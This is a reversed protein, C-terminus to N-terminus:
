RGRVYYSPRSPVTKMPTQRDVGPPSPNGLTPVGGGDLTPVEGGDLTPVGGGALDPHPTGWLLYGEGWALYTGRGEDLNSVGEGRGLYTGGKRRASAVCRVTHRKRERLLVKKNINQKSVTKDRGSRTAYFVCWSHVSINHVM